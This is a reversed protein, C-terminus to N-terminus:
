AARLPWDPFWSETPVGASRPGLVPTCTHHFLKFLHGRIYSAPPPFERCIDLYEEAVEWTAWEGEEFIRPNHLNGEEISM